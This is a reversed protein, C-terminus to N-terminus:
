QAARLMKVMVGEGVGHVRIGKLWPAEKDYGKWRDTANVQSIVQISPETPPVTVLQYDQIGDAPPQVYTARALKTGSYGGSSVQGTAMVVLTPPNSEEIKFDVSVITKVFQQKNDKDVASAFPQVAIALGLSALFLGVLPKCM